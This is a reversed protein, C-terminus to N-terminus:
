PSSEELSLETLRSPWIQIRGAADSSWDAPNQQELVRTAGRQVVALRLKQGGRLPGVRITQGAKPPGEAAYVAHHPGYGTQARPAGIPITWPDHAEDRWLSAPATWTVGDPPGDAEILLLFPSLNFESTAEDSNPPADTLRGQLALLILFLLTVGGFGCTVLDLFSLSMGRQGSM